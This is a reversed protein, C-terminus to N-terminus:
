YLGVANLLNGADSQFLNRQFYLTKRPSSLSGQACPTPREFRGAGVLDNIVHAQNAVALDCQLYNRLQLKKVLSRKLPPPSHRPRCRSSPPLRLLRMSQWGRLRSGATSLSPRDRLSAPLHRCSEFALHSVFLRASGSRSDNSYPFVESPAAFYKQGAWNVRSRDAQAAFKRM